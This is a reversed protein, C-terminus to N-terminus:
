TVTERKVTQSLRNGAIRLRGRRGRQTASRLRSRACRAGDSMRSRSTGCVITEDAAPVMRETKALGDLILEALVDHTIGHALMLAETCGNSGRLSRNWRVATIPASSPCTDPRVCVAQRGALRPRALTRAIWDMGIPRKNKRAACVSESRKSRRHIKWM